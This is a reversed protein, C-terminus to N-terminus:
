RNVGAEEAIEHYPPGHSFRLIAAAGSPIQRADLFRVRGSNRITALASWNIADEQQGPEPTASTLVLEDISGASAAAVIEARNIIVRGRNAAEEMERLTGETAMTSRAAMLQAAKEYLFKTGLMDPSGHIAGTLLPSYSNVKRYASLERPVAALILPQPDHALIARVERDVEKFFDHLRGPRHESWNATGFQVGRMNGVSPGASSRARPSHDPEELADRGELSNAISQPLVAEALGKRSGRYLRVTKMSLTLLWFDSNDAVGQLLPLLLFEDAVRVRPTLVDRWFDVLTCDPARFIVLSGKRGAWDTNLAIKRVPRLMDEREAPEFGKAALLQDAERIAEMIGAPPEFAHLGGKNLPHSRLPLFITLCPGTVAALMKLDNQTLM